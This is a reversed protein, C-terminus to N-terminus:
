AAIAELRGIRHDTEADSNDDIGLVESLGHLRFVEALRQHCILRFERREQRARQAVLVFVSIGSSDVFAAHADVVLRRPERELVDMLLRQGERASFFDLGGEITVFANQGYWGVAAALASVPRSPLSAIMWTDEEEVAVPM